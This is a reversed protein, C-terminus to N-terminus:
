EDDPKSVKRLNAFFDDRDPTPVELGQPTVERDAQKETETVEPEEAQAM